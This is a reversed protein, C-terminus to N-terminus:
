AVEVEVAGADELFQAAETAQAAASFTAEADAKLISLWSGLYETHRLRGPISLTACLLAAALEAVLEEAAYSADGFPGLLDRALRSGHGTWHAHEVPDGLTVNHGEVFIPSPDNGVTSTGPGCLRGVTLAGFVLAEDL